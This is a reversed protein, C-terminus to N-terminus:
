ENIEIQTLVPCHDSLYFGNIMETLVGHRLVNCKNNVFIYDIIRRNEIPTRGLSNSTWSANYVIKAIRRSDKLTNKGDDELIRKIVDSEPTSNFDGTVMIPREGAIGAIKKRLLIASQKRAETGRHDFHTNFVAFEINSTKDKLIAWSVIRKCVADWGKECVEPNENLWFTGSNIEEFRNAKFFLPVYEGDEKGDDRAVGIYNYEPLRNRLDQLQSHLVEQMGIVDADNFLIVKAANDKRYKWNNDADDPEDYRINFSMVKIEVQAKVPVYFLTLFLIGLYFLQVNKMIM